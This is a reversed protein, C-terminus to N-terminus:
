GRLSHISSREAERPLKKVRHIQRGSLEQVPNLRSKMTSEAEEAQTEAAKAEASYTNTQSFAEM